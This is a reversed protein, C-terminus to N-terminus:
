GESESVKRFKKALCDKCLMDGDYDYLESPKFEEECGEGDCYYHPVNRNPCASGMCPYSPVACSCCEDEYVLGM